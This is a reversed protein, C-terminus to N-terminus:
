ATRAARVSVHWPMLRRELLAVLLYLGIGFVSALVIAAWAEAFQFLAAKTTIYQGLRDQPGGFYEKVIAGILSLPAAVKLASFLFPLATPVQLRQLTSRRDSAYSAMLERQSPTTSLLGRLVNVMVPFFVLVGVVLVTGFPSLLGFWANAVPALVIIPMSNVAVALPLAGRRLATWRACAAAAVVALVGGVLLGSVAGALTALGASVLSPWEAVVARAVDTPRPLIFSEAGTARLAVEVAVLAGVFLALAPLAGVLRARATM